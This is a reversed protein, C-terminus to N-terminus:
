RATLRGPAETAMQEVVTAAPLVETLMGAINGAGNM